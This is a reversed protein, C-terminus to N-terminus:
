IRVNRPVESSFFHGFDRRKAVYERCIRENQKSLDKRKAAGGFCLMRFIDRLTPIQYMKPVYFEGEGRAGGGLPWIESSIRVNRSM